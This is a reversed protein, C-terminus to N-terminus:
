RTSSPSAWMSPASPIPRGSRTSGRARPCPATVAVIKPDEAAEQILSDAFVRTYAPANAKPKALTGTIVDFTGV